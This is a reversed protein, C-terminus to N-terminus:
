SAPESGLVIYNVSTTWPHANLSSRRYTSWTSPSRARPPYRPLAPRELLNIQCPPWTALHLHHYQRCHALQFAPDILRAALRLAVLQLTPDVAVSALQLSYPRGGLRRELPPDVALPVLNLGLPQPTPDVLVAYASRLQICIIHIYIYIYIHIHVRM